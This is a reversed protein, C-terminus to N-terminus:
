VQRSNPSQPFSLINKENVSVVAKYRSHKSNDTV